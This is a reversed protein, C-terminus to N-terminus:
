APENSPTDAPSSPPLLSPGSRDTRLGDLYAIIDLIEIRTLHADPMPPHPAILVNKIREGTQGPRNAIARFTPVGAVASAQTSSSIAHCAQCWQQALRLGRDASPEIKETGAVPRWALVFVGLVALLLGIRISSM